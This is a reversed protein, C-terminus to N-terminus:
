SIQAVITFGCIADFFIEIRSGERRAISGVSYGADLERLAPKFRQDLAPRPMSHCERDSASAAPSPYLAVALCCSAGLAHHKHHVVDRARERLRRAGRADRLGREVIANHQVVHRHAVRERETAAARTTAEWLGFTTRELGPKAAGTGCIPHFDSCETSSRPAAAIVLGRVNGEIRPVGPTIRVCSM